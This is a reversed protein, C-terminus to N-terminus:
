PREKANSRLSHLDFHVARWSRNGACFRIFGAVLLGATTTAIHIPVATRPVIGSPRAGGRRDLAAGGKAFELHIRTGTVDCCAVVPCEGAWRGLERWLSPSGPCCLVVDGPDVNRLSRKALTHVELMPNLQHCLQATAHVRQRGVDAFPYGECVHTAMSVIRADVLQLRRVGLGALQLAVQRGVGGLGIITASKVTRRLQRWYPPPRTKKM